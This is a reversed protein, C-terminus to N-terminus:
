SLFYEVLANFTDQGDYCTDILFGKEEKYERLGRYYFNKKSDEIIFPVINWKLCEKFAILRGVRGNGDQFPHISEFNYHFDVIDEFTIKEKSNYGELLAKMEKEVNEPATTINGGVTNARAKYDGVKFWSLMSDKTATKLIKHIEKILEETLTEEARDICFDVARFHNTTEIIDDVPVGDATDVTATEFIMRTQDESLKSGEIHSSNYTLRIQVEHYLGGSIKASKEDRLAQLIKNSSEERCLEEILCGFYGAFKQLTLRSLKEGKAIKAITRSSLGLKKAIESKGIKLEKLKKILGQYNYM